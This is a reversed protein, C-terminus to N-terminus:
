AQKDYWIAIANYRAKRDPFCDLEAEGTTKCKRKAKKRRKKSKQKIDDNKVVQVEM